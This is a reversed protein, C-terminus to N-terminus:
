ASPRIVWLGVFKFLTVRIV